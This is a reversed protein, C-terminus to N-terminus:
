KDDLKASIETIQEKIDRTEELQKKAVDLKQANIEDPTAPKQRERFDNVVGFEHPRREKPEM